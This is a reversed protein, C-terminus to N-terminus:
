VEESAGLRGDTGYRSRVCRSIEQGNAFVTIIPLREQEGRRRFQRQGVDSGDGTYRISCPDDIPGTVTEARKLAEDFQM